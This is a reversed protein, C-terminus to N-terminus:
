SRRSPKSGWISVGTHKAQIYAEECELSFVGEIAERAAGSTYKSLFYLRESSSDTHSEIIAEFSKIWIPFRLLEGTFVEQEMRPLNDRKNSLLDALKHLLNATDDTHSAADKAPPPNNVNGSKLASHGQSAHIAPGKVDYRQSVPVHGDYAQSVLAGLM